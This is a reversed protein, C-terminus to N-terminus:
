ESAEVPENQYRVDLSAEVNAISSQLAAILKEAGEVSLQINSNGNGHMVNVWVTDDLASV